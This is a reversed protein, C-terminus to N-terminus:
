RAVPTQQPRVEVLEAARRRLALRTSRIQFVVPDGLPATREVKVLTGPVFGIEQLRRGEGTPGSDVSVVIGSAGVALASLRCTRSDDLRDFGIIPDTQSSRGPRTQMRRRVM